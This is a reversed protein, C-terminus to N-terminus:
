PLVNGDDGSGSGNSIRCGAFIDLDPNYLKTQVQMLGLVSHAFNDHSFQRNANLAKRKICDYDIGQRALGAKDAWFVFPVLKQYDPAIIYPLGHLYINNEGLSEGHDSIYFLSTDNDPYQKLIDILGSIVYDTYLITNDYTNVIQDHNCNQLETTDCSPTFKKFDDPYRQYYAPGHSGITHLVVFTDTNDNNDLVRKLRDFLVEDYCYKGQCLKPYEANAIREYKIRNCVEKCGSSNEQWNVAIGAKALIDLLNETHEAQSEKFDKRSDFSFMCPVSVSTITGCAETDPFYAIDQKALMPNTKKGYGNLSFNAARGTEGLVFVTVSRHPSQKAGRKVNNDLVVFVDPKDFFRKLYGFSGNMYNAINILNKAPKHNRGAYIFDKSFIVACISLLLVIILNSLVRFKLEKKFSRYEIDTFILLLAPLIGSIFVWFCSSLSFLEVAEKADTEFVSQIIGKDIYIGYTVMAFNAVSSSLLLFVLLPKAAYPIIIVSFLLYYPVILTFILTVTFAFNGFTEIQTNNAIYQWFAINMPFCFYLAALIILLRSSIHLKPM